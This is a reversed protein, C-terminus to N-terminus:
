IIEFIRKLKKVLIWDAKTLDERFYKKVADISERSVRSILDDTADFHRGYLRKDGGAADIKVCVESGAGATEQQNHELEISQVVGLDCFDGKNPKNPVTIPTGVKLIGEKVKVGMVIPDRANFVSDPLVELVVPFTARSAWEARERVKVEKVHERFAEELHYIIDATFIKIGLTNAMAQADREVTVDFALIMANRPDRELQLSTRTVDRKHVPGISLGSVPIKEGELFVLLAEMAGLTSCQVHVGKNKTKFKELTEDLDKMVLEKLEEIHEDDDDRAIHVKLGAIAKDLDKAAIKIGNAAPVSKFLNYSNKVRMEKLPEPMLLSRIPTVIPGELGCLVMTMGENLTGDALLVDITTGYGEIKRVEMITCNMEGTFTVAKQLTTQVMKCIAFLLDPIGEGTHASTPIINLVTDENWEKSTDKNKYYLEANFGQENMQLIARATLIEFQDTTHPKQKKLANQVPANPTPKWDTIRDIKNLAIVFPVEKDRLMNISEITQPELGHMIDIVLIAVNCLSSGRDRLNSFAEHGPTDMILLGPLKLDFKEFGKVKSAQKIVEAKPFFSAGIQQTIGGAEGDQVSSKRIKDLIKTKGTDVHGMVCILPSRMEGLAVGGYKESASAMAAVLKADDAAKAAADRALKDKEAKAAKAKEVKALGAARAKQKAAKAADKKAQEEAKIKAVEAEDESSDDWNDKEDDEDHEEDESSSEKEWDELEKEEVAPAPEATKVEVV